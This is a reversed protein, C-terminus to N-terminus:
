EARCSDGRERARLERADAVQFEVLDRPHDYHMMTRGNAIDAPSPLIWPQVAQPSGLRPSVDGPQRIALDYLLMEDWGEGSLQDTGPTVLSAL